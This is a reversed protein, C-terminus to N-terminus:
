RVTLILAREAIRVEMNPEEPQRTGDRGLAVFHSEALV